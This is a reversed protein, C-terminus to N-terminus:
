KSMDIKQIFHIVDELLSFTRYGYRVSRRVAVKIEDPYIIYGNREVLNDTIVMRGGGSWNISFLPSGQLHKRLSNLLLPHRTALDSSDALLHKEARSLLLLVTEGQNADSIDCAWTPSAWYHLRKLQSDGKITRTVELEAVRGAEFNTLKVVKGVVIVDSTKVLERLVGPAVKAQLTPAVLVATLVFGLFVTNLRM